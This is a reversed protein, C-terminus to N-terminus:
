EKPEEYQWVTKSYEPTDLECEEIWMYRKTWNSGTFQTNFYELAKKMSSFVGYVSDGEYPYSQKLIYIM